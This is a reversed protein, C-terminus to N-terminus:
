PYLAAISVSDTVTCYAGAFDASTAARADLWERPVQGPPVTPYFVADEDDEVIEHLEAALRADRRFGAM